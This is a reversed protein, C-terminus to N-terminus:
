TLPSATDTQAVEMVHAPLDLAGSRILDLLDDAREQYEWCEADRAALRLFGQLAAAAYDLRRLEDTAVVTAYDGGQKTIEVRDGQAADSLRQTVKSCFETVTHRAM